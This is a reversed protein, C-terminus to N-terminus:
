IQSKGFKVPVRPKKTYLKGRDKHNPQWSYMKPIYTGVKWWEIGSANRSNAMWRHAEYPVFNREDQPIDIKGQILRLLCIVLLSCCQYGKMKSVLITSKIQTIQNIQNFGFNPGFSLQPVTLYRM